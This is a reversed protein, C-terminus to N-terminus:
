EHNDVYTAVILTGDQSQGALGQGIANPQDFQLRRKALSTGPAQCHM